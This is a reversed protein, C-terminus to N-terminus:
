PRLGCIGDPAVRDLARRGNGAFTGSGGARACEDATFPGRRVEAATTVPARGTGSRPRGLGSGAQYAPASAPGARPRGHKSAAAGPPSPGRLRLADRIPDRATRGAMDGRVTSGPAGAASLLETSFFSHLMWMPCSGTEIDSKVADAEGSPIRVGHFGIPQRCAETTQPGPHHNQSVNMIEPLRRPQSGVRERQFPEAARAEPTGHVGSSVQAPRVPVPFRFSPDTGRGPVSRGAPWYYAQGPSAPGGSSLGESRDRDM